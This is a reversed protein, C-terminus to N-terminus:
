RRKRREEQLLHLFEYVIEQPEEVGYDKKNILREHYPTTHSKSWIEEAYFQLGILIDRVPARKGNSRLYPGGELDKDGKLRGHGLKFREYIGRGDRRGDIMKKESFYNLGDLMVQGAAPFPFHEAYDWLQSIMTIRQAAEAM